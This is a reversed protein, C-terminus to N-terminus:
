RGEVDFLRTTKKLTRLMIYVAFGFIGGIQWKPDLYFRDTYFFHKAFNLYVFTVVLGFFGSYERKLVVKWSFRLAAKKWKGLAPIFAPTVSAWDTYDKGFKSRLFQEEAFMIREYYLWFFSLCFLILLLPGAYLIPGLWMFFNGLYLPHRVTAYIGSKNITRAVQGESTNRGSTGAPVFGITIVRILLGLASVAVCLLNWWLLQFGALEENTLFIALTAAVYLLVPFYSRYRFLFNGQKELEEQLPM